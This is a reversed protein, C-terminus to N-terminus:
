IPIAVRINSWFIMRFLIGRLMWTIRWLPSRETLVVYRGCMLLVNEIEVRRAPDSQEACDLASATGFAGLYYRRLAMIERRECLQRWHSHMRAPLGGRSGVSVYSDKPDNSRWIATPRHSVYARGRLGLIRATEQVGPRRTAMRVEFDSAQGLRWFVAGNSFAHSFLLAPLMQSVEHPGEAYISSLTTADSLVGPEGPVLVNECVQSAFVVDVDHKSCLEVQRQLHEPLLYNDDELVCAYEGGVIPANRFCQNINGIAGLSVKNRQYSIRDDGMAEVVDLGSGDPCDDFVVCRWNAHTQARLSLLARNLLIPRRFTPVRVECMGRALTM